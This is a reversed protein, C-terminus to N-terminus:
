CGNVTGSSWSSFGGSKLEGSDEAANFVFRIWGSSQSTTTASWMFTPQNTVTALTFCFAIRALVYCPRCSHLAGSSPRQFCIGAM